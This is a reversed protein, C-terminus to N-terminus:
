RFKEKKNRKPSAMFLSYFNKERDYFSCKMAKRMCKNDKVGFFLFTFIAQVLQAAVLALRRTLLYKTELDFSLLYARQISTRELSSACFALFEHFENLSM